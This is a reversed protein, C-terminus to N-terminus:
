TGGFPVRVRPKFLIPDNALYPIIPRISYGDPISVVIFDPSQGGAGLDCGTISCACEGIEQTGASYRELRVQIMDPTLNALISTNSTDTSGSIAFNKAATIISDADDCFNVGQQTGVYRALNYIIKHLTYYTYTVRALETMGMLLLILLPMFMAMELLANGRRRM